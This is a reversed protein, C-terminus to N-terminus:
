ARLLETLAQRVKDPEGLTGLREFIGLARTLYERAQAINGQQQYLQGYGAYALALENEAKIQQLIAISYEFHPAALPEEIQTPNTELALEGLLRHACGIHFKMGWREAIELLEQLTQKAKDYEGALYYGEGLFPTFLEAWICRAARHMSVAQAQFELGRRPEGSRGWTWALGAQAWIKDAPTPAKQVALEGYEVAQGLDGKATYAWSIFWAAVSGNSNDAFEEAVRLAKQGEAVADDWRGLFIYALSVACLAWVYWRLHFRQAMLRLFPEQSALVQAYDGKFVHSYLLIMYAQGADEANGAAECLEVARTLTQIARDCHGFWWEGWGVRGYFAGLLAPEGVRVAMAEYRTLLDYYEPFKLLLVMMVHQNLLLAIRRRQNHATEPLTDLLMMAEDFYGKAEEMANARAAKQNALDLYEVAKDKNGSRAYHYALVEYYEELRESYLVEIAKGIREHYEERKPRLLTQYVTEQTLVHKFSYERQPALTTPYLFELDQLQLLIQELEPGQQLVHALLPQSFVRGIVSAVQLVSKLDERLRDIRALLVGQVTAPIDLAALPRMVRYGGREQVLDGSELLSLTLEEVFLPNGDTKAVILRELEPPLTAVGLLDQV